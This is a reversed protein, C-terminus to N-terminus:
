KEHAASRERLEQIRNNLLIFPLYILTGVAVNLVSVLLAQWTGGTGLWGVMFGPATSSVPYVTPPMFNFKLAIWTILISAVPSLLFPIVLLPNYLVPLGILLSQSVNFISPVLSTKAALQFNPNRSRWLIAILLSLAMGPGGINAFSDFLTHITIPNPAGWPSGHQIAYELNQVTSGSNSGSFDFSGIIGLFWFGNNLIAALIAALLIWEYNSFSLQYLSSVLGNVGTRSFFSVLYSFLGFFLLTVAIPLVNYRAWVTLQTNLNPDREKMHKGLRNFFWGTVLGVILALFCGSYSLNNELFKGVQQRGTHALFSGNFNMIMFAFVATLSAALNYRTSTRTALNAALFVVAIAVVGNISLDLLTLYKAVVKFGPLWHSIHYISNLFGNKQFIAQSLFDVYTGVLVFPFLLTLTERIVRLYVQHEAFDNIKILYRTLRETM